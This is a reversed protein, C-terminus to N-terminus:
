GKTIKTWNLSASNVLQRRHRLLDRLEAREPDPKGRQTDAMPFTHGYLSIVQADLHARRRSGVPRALSRM